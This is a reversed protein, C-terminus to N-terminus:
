LEQARLRDRRELADILEVLRIARGHVDWWSPMPRVPDRPPTFPSELVAEVLFSAADLPPFGPARSAPLTPAMAIALLGLKRPASVVSRGTVSDLGRKSLARGIDAYLLRAARIGPRCDSPLRAIGIDARAYLTDAAKLLADIASALQPTMRPNALFAKPPLGSSRLWSLPLYLRGARADEGVDRAINTLQMAMGLDAARALDDAGRRGMLIAMMTGVTGAVRAAYGHLEALTEYTRGEADWRFGEILADLLARPIGYSLVVSSLARDVPTDFPQGAYARDLRMSLARLTAESARELDVADDAVRCFAYLCTAADRVRKPLLLSAAYFTRSGISLLKRCDALDADSVPPVKHSTLSM